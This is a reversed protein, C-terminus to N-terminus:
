NKDSDPMDKEIEKGKELQELRSNISDLTKALYDSQSKLFAKETEESYEPYVPQAPFAPYGYSGYGAGRGMGYGNGYGRGFGRGAGNRHGYGLGAGRGYGGNNAYGPRDYGACFGLGRGTMPGMGNPGTRDGYAM